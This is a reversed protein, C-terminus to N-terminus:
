IDTYYSSLNQLSRNYSINLPILYTYPIYVADDTVKISRYQYYQRIKLLTNYFNQMVKQLDQNNGSYNVVDSYLSYILKRGKTNKDLHTYLFQM